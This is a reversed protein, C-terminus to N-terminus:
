SKPDKFLWSLLLTWKTSHNVIVVLSVLVKKKEASILQLCLHHDPKLEPCTQDILEVGIVGWEPITM